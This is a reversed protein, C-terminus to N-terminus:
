FHIARQYRGPNGNRQFFLSISGRFLTESIGPISFKIWNKHLAHRLIRYSTM